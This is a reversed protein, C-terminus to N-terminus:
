PKSLRQKTRDIIARSIQELEEASLSKLETELQELTMRQDQRAALIAKVRDSSEPLIGQKSQKRLLEGVTLAVVGPSVPKQLYADYQAEAPFNEEREASLLLVRLDPREPKLQRILQHGDLGPMQVATVLVQILGDYAGALRLAEAGDPAEIVHYGAESLVEGISARLFAHDEAM